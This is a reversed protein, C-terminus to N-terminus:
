AEFLRDQRCAAKGLGRDWWGESSKLVWGVDEVQGVAM